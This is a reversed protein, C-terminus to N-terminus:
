KRIITTNLTVRWVKEGQQLTVANADIRKVQAGVGKIIQGERVAQENIIAVKRDSSVLISSLVIPNPGAVRTEGESNHGYGLPRTPDLSDAFVQRFNILVFICAFILGTYKFM